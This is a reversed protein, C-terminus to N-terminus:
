DEGASLLQRTDASCVLARVAGGHGALTYAAGRGGGIDWAVVTHDTSASYLWRSAGAWVLCEVSGSHGQVPCSIGSCSVILRRSTECHGSSAGNLM